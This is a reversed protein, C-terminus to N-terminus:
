DPQARRHAARLADAHETVQVMAILALVPLMMELTEELALLMGALRVDIADAGGLWGPARDFLQSLAADAVIAALTVAVPDRASVGRRKLARLVRLGLWAVAVLLLTLAAALALRTQAPNCCHGGLNADLLHKRVSIERGICAVLTYAVALRDATCLAQMRAVLAGVAAVAYLVVTMSEVPGGERMLANLAAPPLLIGVAVAALATAALALPAAALGLPATAIM